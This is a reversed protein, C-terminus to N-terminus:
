DVIWTDKAGGGQSSNVILSGEALAVRTLPAPVVMTGRGSGVAFVRLDVHRPELHGGTVTPHRSLRVTEQAV